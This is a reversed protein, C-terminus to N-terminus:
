LSNRETIVLEVMSANSWDDHGVDLHILVNKEVQLDQVLMQLDVRWSRANLDFFRLKLTELKSNSRIVCGIDFIRESIDDITISVYELTTLRSLAM